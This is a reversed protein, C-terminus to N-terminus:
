QRMLFNEAIVISEAVDAVRKNRNMAMTRLTKCAVEEEVKARKMLIGKAREITKRDQMNLYSKELEWHLAQTEKFRAIAVDIIPKVRDKELGEVIYSDVGAKLAAIAMQTEMCRTFLVVPCPRRQKVLRLQELTSLDPAAMEIVILDANSKCLQPLLRQTNSLRGVIVCGAQALGQMLTTLRDSEDGILMVRM